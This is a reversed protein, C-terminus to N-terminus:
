DRAPPNDGISPKCFRQTEASSRAAGTSRHGCAGGALANRPMAHDAVASFQQDAFGIGAQLAFHELAFAHFHAFAPHVHFQECPRRRFPVHAVSGEGRRAFFATFSGTLGSAFSAGPRDATGGTRPGTNRGPGRSIVASLFIRTIARSRTKWTSRM